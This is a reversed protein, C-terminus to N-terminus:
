RSIGEGASGQRLCNWSHLMFGSEEEYSFLSVSGNDLGLKWFWGSEVGMMVIFCVKLVALHSVAAVTGGPNERVIGLLTPQLRSCVDRMSAGGPFTFGGPDRMWTELMGGGFKEQVEEVTLGQWEGYDIDILGDNIVVGAHIEDAIIEATEVARPVPSTHITSVGSGSLIGAAGQAELRGRENLHVDSMGRFRRDRNLDTEGHRVLYLRSPEVM